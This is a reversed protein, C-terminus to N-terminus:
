QATQNLGLETFIANGISNLKETKVVCNLSELEKYLKDDICYSIESDNKLRGNVETSERYVIHYGYETEVLEKSIQGDKLSQVAKMYEEVVAGQTAEVIGDYSEQTATDESHEDALAKFDGGNLAKKLVDQAKAKVAAKEDETMESSTKFLIHRTTYINYDATEGEELKSDIYAKVDDETIKEKFDELYASIISDNYFLQTISEVTVGTQIFSDTYQAVYDDVEKKDEESLTYGADKAKALVMKDIVIKESLYESIDEVSYGYLYTFMSAYTRFYLEYEERTVSGGNDYTIVKENFKFGFYYVMLGITALLLVGVVSWIVITDTAVRSTRVKKEKKEKKGKVKVVENTNDM